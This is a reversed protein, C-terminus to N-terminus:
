SIETAKVKQWHAEKESLSLAPFTQGAAIEMSRFRREFKSTGAKLASEADVDLFRCMNVVSFLLDGMEEAREAASIAAEVEDLEEFIKAKAGAIDPWDFGTRAARTQIKQARLLAPLALAVGALASIDANNAREEAKISEWNAVVTDADNASVDGFVHPHRRVMKDCVGAIVDNFTFAGQEAAMQSHFVVQLLLDGLEDKLAMMDDREIADAVEYAEEVTYCAISSFNQDLDWPCGHEPDRLRAMIDTLSHIATPSNDSM